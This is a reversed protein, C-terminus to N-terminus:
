GINYGLFVVIFVFVGGFYVCVDSGEEGLDVLLFGGMWLGMM